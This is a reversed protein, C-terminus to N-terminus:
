ANPKRSILVIRPSEKDNFEHFNYDGFLHVIEFGASLHLIELDAASYVKVKEQFHFVDAGDMVAINKVIFPSIWEKKYEFKIEGRLEEGSMPLCDKVSSGNLYDQVFYGGPELMSYIHHISAIDDQPDDFYGFSTFLNFVAQFKHSPYAERMDHVFFETGPTHLSNAYDISNRSLDFGTTQYGLSALVRSHRGKGCAVDAVKAGPSLQIHAVLNRIFVAAEDENRKNYLLHYYESDFWNAFWESV